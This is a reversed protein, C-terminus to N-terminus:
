HLVNVRCVYGLGKRPSPILNRIVASFGGVLGGNLGSVLM